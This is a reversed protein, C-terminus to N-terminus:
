DKRTTVALMGPISAMQVYMSSSCVPLVYGLLGDSLALGSSKRDNIESSVASGEDDRHMYEKIKDQLAERSKSNSETVKEGRVYRKYLVKVCEELDKGVIMSNVVNGLERKFSVIFQENFKGARRVKSLEQALLAIKQDKLEMVAEKDKKQDFEEVLEEYMTTIHRELGEIHATIPGRESSLQQLRHDQTPIRLFCRCPTL